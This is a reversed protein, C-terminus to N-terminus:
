RSWDCNTSKELYNDLNKMSSLKNTVLHSGKFGLRKIIDNLHAHGM